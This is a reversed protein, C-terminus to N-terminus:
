PKFKNKENFMVTDVPPNFEIKSIIMERKGFSGDLKKSYVMRNFAFQIGEFIKFDSFSIFFLDNRKSLDGNYSIKEILCNQPNLYYYLTDKEPTVAMVRHYYEGSLNVDELKEIIIGKKKWDHLFGEFDLYQQILLRDLNNPEWIEPSFGDAKRWFKGSAYAYIDEGNQKFLQSLYYKNRLVTIEIDYCFLISSQNKLFHNKNVIYYKMSEINKLAKIGVAEHHKELIQDLSQGILSNLTLLLLFNLCFAHKLYKKM